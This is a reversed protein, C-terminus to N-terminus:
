PMPVDRESQETSELPENLAATALKVFRELAYKEFALELGAHWTGLTFEIDHQVNIRCTMATGNQIGFWGSTQVEEAGDAVAIPKGEDPEPMRPPTRM